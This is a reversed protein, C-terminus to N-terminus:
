KASVEWHKMSESGMDFTEVSVISAADPHDSLWRKIGKYAIDDEVTGKLLIDGTALTWYWEQESQPLQAFQPAPLYQKDMYDCTSFDISVFVSRNEAHSKGKGSSRFGDEWHVMPIETRLYVTEDSPHNVVKNFITASTNCLM